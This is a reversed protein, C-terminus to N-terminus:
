NNAHLLVSYEGFIYTDYVTGLCFHEHYHSVDPWAFEHVSKDLSQVLM